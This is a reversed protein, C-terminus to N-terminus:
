AAFKVTRVLRALQDLQAERMKGRCGKRGRIVVEAEVLAGARVEKVEHVEMEVWAASAM